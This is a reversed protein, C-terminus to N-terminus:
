PAVSLRDTLLKIVATIRAPRHGGAPTVTNLAIAPIFWDTM